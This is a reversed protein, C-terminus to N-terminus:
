ISISFHIKIESNSISLIQSIIGEITVCSIFPLLEGLIRVPDPQGGEPKMWFEVTFETNPISRGNGEMKLVLAESRGSFYAATGLSGPGRTMDVHRKRRVRARTSHREKDTVTCSGHRDSLQKQANELALTKHSEFHHTKQLHTDHTIEQTDKCYILCINAIFITYLFIAAHGSHRWEM